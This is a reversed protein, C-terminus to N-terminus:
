EDRLSVSPEIRAARRAPGLTALLATLALLGATGALVLPDGAEVEFLLSEIAQGLVVALALGVLAAAVVLRLAGGLFRGVVQGPAAGLALRVGIERRRERVRLLSVGYVGFAALLLAVAAFALLIRALFRERALAGDVVTGIAQLADIPVNPDIRAVLHRIEPGFVALAQAGSRGAGGRRATELRLVISMRSEREQVQPFYIAARAAADLATHHVDGVVGVIERPGGDGWAVVLSRGIASQGPWLQRALSRSVVVEGPADTRANAVDRGEILPIGLADFYAGDVIRVDAVSQESTPPEARDAAWVLTAAGAGTLPLHSVAGAAAVEPLSELDGLLRDYFGFIRADDLMTPPSVAFSIGATRDFGPDVRLLQVVTRLMLGAGVLLVLAVVMQGFVLASRLGQAGPSASAGRTTGVPGLRRLVPLASLVGLVLASLAGLAVVLPWLPTSGLSLAGGVLQPPLQTQALAFLARAVFWAGLTSAAALAMGEVVLQRLIRARGAGLASRVRLEQLRGITRAVLLSSANIWVMTLVLVLAGFLALLPMRLPERLHESFSVVRGRWGDYFEPHEVAHRSWVTELQAQAAAVDVGDALRGVLLMWRGRPQRWQEYIPLPRYLVAADGYPSYAGGMAFDVGPPLVGIITHAVGDVVATDGVADRRGGFRQRWLDHSLVVTPPAGELMDDADFFRGIWPTRGLLQFYGETVWRAPVRQPPSGSADAVAPASPGAAASDATPQAGDTSQLVAGGLNAPMTNFAALGELSTLQDRWIMFSAPSVVNKGLGRTTEQEWLTVLEHPQDFPPPQWLIDLVLAGVAATAGLGLALMGLLLIGDFPRRRLQRGVFQLDDVQESFLQGLRWRRNRGTALRRCAAAHRARDGFRAQARRRAEDEDLGAETLERMHMALHFDFEEEVERASPLRWLPSRNSRRM